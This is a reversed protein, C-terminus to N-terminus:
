KGSSRATHLHKETALRIHKALTSKGMGPLGVPVFFIKKVANMQKQTVLDTVFKLLAAEIEEEKCNFPVPVEYM